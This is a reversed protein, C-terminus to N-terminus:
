IINTKFVTVWPEWSWDAPALNAVPGLAYSSLFFPVSKPPALSSIAEHQQVTGTYPGFCIILPQFLCAVYGVSFLVRPFCMALRQQLPSSHTLEKM